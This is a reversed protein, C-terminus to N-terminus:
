ITGKVALIGGSTLQVSRQQMLNAVLFSIIKSETCLSGKEFM